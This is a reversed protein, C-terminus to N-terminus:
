AINDVSVRLLAKFKFKTYEGVVVSEHYRTFLDNEFVTVRGDEIVGPELHYKLMTSPDRVFM